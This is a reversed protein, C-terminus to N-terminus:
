RDPVEEGPGSNIAEIYIKNTDVLIRNAIKRDKCHELVTTRIGEVVAQITALAYEVTVVKYLDLAIRREKDAVRALQDIYGAVSRKAKAARYHPKVINELNTLTDIITKPDGGLKIAKSLVKLTTHAEIWAPHTNGQDMQKLDQVLFLRLLVADGTLSLPDKERLIEEYTEAMNGPIYKSYRGTRYLPSAIGGPSQGGHMRCRNSKRIPWSKCIAGTRTKAGCRKKIMAHPIGCQLPYENGYGDCIM